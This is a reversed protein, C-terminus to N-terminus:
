SSGRHRSERERERRQREHRRQLVETRILAFREFLELRDRVPTVLPRAEFEEFLRPPVELYGRERERERAREIQVPYRTRASLYNIPPFCAAISRTYSPPVPCYEGGEGGRASDVEGGTM